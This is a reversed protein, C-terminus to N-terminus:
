EKLCMAHNAENQGLGEAIGRVQNQTYFVYVLTKQCKASRSLCQTDFSIASIKMGTVVPSKTIPM